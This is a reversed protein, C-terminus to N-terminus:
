KPPVPRPMNKGYETVNFYSLVHFGNGKMYKAYDNLQRCSTETGKGPPAPEACSRTWKEDMSKVPPIFNGMYPFAMPLLLPVPPSRLGEGALLRAVALLPLPSGSGV